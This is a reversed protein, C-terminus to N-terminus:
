MELVSRLKNIFLNGLVKLIIVQLGVSWIPKNFGLTACIHFFIMSRQSSNQAPQPNITALTSEQFPPRPIRGPYEVTLNM